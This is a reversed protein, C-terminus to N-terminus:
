FSDSSVIGGDSMYGLKRLVVLDTTEKLFVVSGDGRVANAGGPHVSGAWSWSGLRGFLKTTATNNYIWKNLGVTPDAGTMVWGRFYWATGEGNYVDLTKEIMAITNSTGDQVAAITANSNEGFMLRSQAATAAWANCTYTNSAAAFDYNTKQGRITASAGKVPSYFDSQKTLKTGADSPCLLVTIATMAATSNASASGPITGAFTTAGGNGAALDSAPLSFNISAYIPGQEMYPLLTALGNLNMMTEGVHNAPVGASCWGYNAGAFPFAGNTSEYNHLALGLQKLNNVCQARRAAERASQVAPLLLAILVGIVFIVVLLEILTFAGRPRDSRYPRSM